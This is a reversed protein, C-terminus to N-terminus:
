RHALSPKIDQQQRAPREPPRRPPPTENAALFPAFYRTFSDDARRSAANPRAASIRRSPRRPVRGRGQAGGDPGPRPWTEEADGLRDIYTYIVETM